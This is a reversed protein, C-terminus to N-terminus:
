CCTDPANGPALMGSIGSLALYRAEEMVQEAPAPLCGAQVSGGDM